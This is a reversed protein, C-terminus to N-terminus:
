PNLKKVVERFPKLATPDRVNQKFIVENPTIRVVDGDYLRAGVELLYSKKRDSAQVQAVFGDATQIIGSLLIEDILLGPIGDPRPGGALTPRNTVLLSKFPDRRDGPDYTYGRGAVIEDEGGLLEDIDAADLAGEADFDEGEGEGEPAATATEEEGSAPPDDQQALAPAAQVPLGLLLLLALRRLTATM